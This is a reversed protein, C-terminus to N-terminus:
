RGTLRLRLLALVRGPAGAPTGALDARAVLALAGLPRGARSWRQGAAAELLGAAAARAEQAVAPDPTHLALDALGWGQGAVAVPDGAGLVGAGAAFLAAGRARAHDIPADELLAEWGEVITALADPSVRGTAVEPALVELIPQGPVSRAGLGSLAEHWWTLRLQAVMPDRTQRTLKALTADLAFVAALARRRAAPAYGLALAREPHGMAPDTGFTDAENVM